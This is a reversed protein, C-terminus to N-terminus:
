FFEHVYESPSSISNIVVLFWDFLGGLNLFSVLHKNDYFQYIRNNKHLFHWM